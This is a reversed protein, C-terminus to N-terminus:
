QINVEELITLENLDFDTNDQHLWAILEPHGSILWANKRKQIKLSGGPSIFEIDKRSKLVLAAAICGSGCSLTEKEIGKEFHRIYRGGIGKSVFHVNAGGPFLGDPSRMKKAMSLFDPHRFFDMDTLFVKHNDTMLVSFCDGPVEFPNKEHYIKIAPIAIQIIVSRGSFNAEIKGFGSIHLIIPDNGAQRLKLFFAACLTGNFSMKFPSGNSNYFNLQYSGANKHPEICVLGDAGLGFNPDCLRTIRCESLWPRDTYCLIFSNGGNHLKALNFRM